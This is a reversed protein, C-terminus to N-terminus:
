RNCLCFQHSLSLCLSFIASINGIRLLVSDLWDILWSLIFTHIEPIILILIYTQTNPVQFYRVHAISISPILHVNKNIYKLVDKRYIEIRLCCACSACRDESRCNRVISLRPFNDELTCKFESFFSLYKQYNM